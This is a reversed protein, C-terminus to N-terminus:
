AASYPNVAVGFSVELQHSRNQNYFTSRPSLTEMKANYNLSGFTRKEYMSLQQNKIGLAKSLFALPRQDQMLVVGIGNASADTELVFLKSFDPLALVPASSM